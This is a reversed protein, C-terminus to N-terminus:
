ASPRFRQVFDGKRRRSLPIHTGDQLIIQNEKNLKTIYRLNILHSKHPAFFGHPQLMKCFEGINYSSVIRRRDTTLIITYKQMGECRLIDRAEFFELGDMTPIGVMEPDTQRALMNELLNRQVRHAQRLEYLSRAHSVAILLEPITLPKYLCANINQFRLGPHLFKDTIAERLLLIVMMEDPFPAMDAYSQMTNSQPAWFVLDPKAAPAIETREMSPTMGMFEVDACLNVLTNRITDCTKLDDDILLTKFMM